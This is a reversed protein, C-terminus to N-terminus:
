DDFEENDDKTDGDSESQPAPFHKEDIKAEEAEEVKKKM